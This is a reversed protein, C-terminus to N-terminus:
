AEPAARNRRHGGSRCGGFRGSRHRPGRSKGDVGVLDEMRLDELLDEEVGADIRVLDRLSPRGGHGHRRAADSIACGDPGASPPTCEGEEKRPSVTTAANKTGLPCLSASPREIAVRPLFSLPLHRLGHNLSHHSKKIWIRDDSMFTMLACAITNFLLLSFRMKNISM